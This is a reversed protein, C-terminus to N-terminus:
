GIQFSKKFTQLAYRQKKPEVSIFISIKYTELPYSFFSSFMTYKGPRHILTFCKTGIKFKNVVINLFFKGM